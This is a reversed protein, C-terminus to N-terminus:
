ISSTATIAATLCELLVHTVAEVTETSKKAGTLNPSKTIKADNTVDVCLVDISIKTFTSVSDSLVPSFITQAVANKVNTASSPFPLGTSTGPTIGSVS